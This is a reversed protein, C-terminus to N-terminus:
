DHQTRLFALIEVGQKRKVGMWVPPPPPPPLPPPRDSESTHGGGRGRLGQRRTLGRATAGSPLFKYKGQPQSFPLLWVGCRKSTNGLCGRCNPFSPLRLKGEVDLVFCVALTLHWTGISRWGWSTCSGVWLSCATENGTFVTRARSVM